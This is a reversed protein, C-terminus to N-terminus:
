SAEGAAVIEASRSMYDDSGQDYVNRLRYIDLGLDGFLIDYLTSKQPHNTLWNEYWAGAAGFGEIEQYRTNINVTGVADPDTPGPEPGYVVADDVYIDVGSAPGEFYVWLEALTGSVNLTYNGSLHVWGSNNATATDVNTYNTGNGDVRQVTVKVTDSSAGSIRVYGSITYTGGIVMKDMMDQQIGQWTSTRGYARGSYTGSYVPSTVASISCSRGVWDATGSEFGPNNLVNANGYLPVGSLCVAFLFLFCFIKGTMMM